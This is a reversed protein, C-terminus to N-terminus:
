YQRGADGFLVKATVTTFPPRTELKGQHHKATKSVLKYGVVVADEGKQRQKNQNTGDNAESGNEENAM